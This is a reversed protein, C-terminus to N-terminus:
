EEGKNELATMMNDVKAIFEYLESEILTQKLTTL